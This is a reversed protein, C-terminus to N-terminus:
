RYTWHKPDPLHPVANFSDLSLRQRTFVLETLSSNRVRWNLELASREPAALVSQAVTGIFGGSTVVAIRSGQSASTQIHEIARSVRKRFDRWSEVGDISLTESQWHVLLQEFMAQFTRLRDPTEASQRNAEILSAFHSNREGLAPAFQTMLGTLDYEDLDALVIPEPWEGGTERFAEGILNATQAQRVRPGAFVQTFRYGHVGWFRGLLRSQEQGTPSLQDYDDSFFSAQGHRILTMSSM